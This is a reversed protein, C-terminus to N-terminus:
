KSEHRVVIKFHIHDFILPKFINVQESIDYCLLNM